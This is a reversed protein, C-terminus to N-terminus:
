NILTTTNSGVVSLHLIFEFSHIWMHLPSIGLEIAEHNLEKDDLKKIDNMELPPAGCINCVKSASNGCIANAAKGDLM